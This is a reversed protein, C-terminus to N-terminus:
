FERLFRKERTVRGRGREKFSTQFLPVVLETAEGGGRPSSTEFRSKISDIIKKKMLTGSLEISLNANKDAGKKKKKKDSIDGWKRLTNGSV